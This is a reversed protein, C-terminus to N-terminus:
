AAEKMQIDEQVMCFYKKGEIENEFDADQEYYIIDGPSVNTKKAPALPNGIHALKAKKFNHTVNLEKIVGADTKKVKLGGLDQVDEDFIPEALVRGAYMIIEGNRVICFINEMCVLFYPKELDIRNDPTIANFHLYVLDGIEVKDQVNKLIYHQSIACPLAVVKGKRVAGARRDLDNEFAVAIVGSKTKVEHLWESNSEVEVLVKDYVPQLM